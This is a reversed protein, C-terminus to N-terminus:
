LLCHVLVQPVLLFKVLTSASCYVSKTLTCQAPLVIYDNEGTSNRSFCRPWLHICFTGYKIACVYTFVYIPYSPTTPNLMAPETIMYVYVNRVSSGLAFRVTELFVYNFFFNPYRM